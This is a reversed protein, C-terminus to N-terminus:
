QTFPVSFSLIYCFNKYRADRSKADDIFYGFGEPIEFSLYSNSLKIPGVGEAGEVIEKKQLKVIKRNEASQASIVM